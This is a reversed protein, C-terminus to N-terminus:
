DTFHPNPHNADQPIEVVLARRFRLGISIASNTAGVIANITVYQDCNNWVEKPSIQCIGSALYGRTVGSTPITTMTNDASVFVSADATTLVIYEVIYESDMGFPSPVQISQSGPSTLVASMISSYEFSEGQNEHM